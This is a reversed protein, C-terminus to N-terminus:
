KTIFLQDITLKKDGIALCESEVSRIDQILQIIKNNISLPLIKVVEKRDKYQIDNFIVTENGVSVESIFKIIEGIYLLNVLEGSDKINNNKIETILKTVLKNENDLSPVICTINIDDETITFTKEPAKTKPVSLTINPENEVKDGLAAIRLGLLVHYKDYVKFETNDEICNDMVIQNIARTITLPSIVGDFGIASIIDTQQTVTLPTFFAERNLSPVWIQVTNTTNHEKLNVIINQFSM